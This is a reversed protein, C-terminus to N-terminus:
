GSMAVTSAFVLRKAGAAIAAEAVNRTGDVELKAASERDKDAPRSGAFHLVCETGRMPGTLTDRALVDARMARAGLAEVAAAQDDRRISAVVEHKDAVLAKAAERGILGTAGTVFCRMTM